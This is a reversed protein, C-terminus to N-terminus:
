ILNCQIKNRVLMDGIYLINPIDNVTMKPANAFMCFPVDQRDTRRDAHFLEAAVPRIKM